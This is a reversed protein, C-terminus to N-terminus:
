RWTRTSSGVPPTVPKRPWIWCIRTRGRRKGHTRDADDRHSDDARFSEHPQRRCSRTASFFAESKLKELYPTTPRRTALHPWWWGPRQARRASSSCCPSGRRSRRPSRSLPDEPDRRWAAGSAGAAAARRRVDPQRDGSETGTRRVSPPRQTSRPGRGARVVRAAGPHGAPDQGCFDAPGTTELRALPIRRPHRAVAACAVQGALRGLAGRTGRDLRQGVTDRAHAGARDRIRAYLRSLRHEAALASFLDPVALALSAPLCGTIGLGARM